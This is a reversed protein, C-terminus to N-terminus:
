PIQVKKSFSSPRIVTLKSGSKVVYAGTLNYAVTADLETDETVDGELDQTASSCPTCSGGCDVGTEDGNQIGDTCTPDNTPISDDDSCSAVFALTALGLMLSFFTKKM